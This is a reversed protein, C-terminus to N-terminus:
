CIMRVGPDRGPPAVLRGGCEPCRDPDRGILRRVIAAADVPRPEPTGTLERLLAMRETKGRGALLGYHRVKALGKPLVHMFLRRLFEVADLEMTKSRGDRSDRYRFAVRGGEMSVLRHNSIAVRHTYRGLYRLVEGADRFPPKCYAVWEKEYMSDVLSRMAGEAALGEACGGLDLSGERWLRKIGAMVKGRFMRSMARVPALFDPSACARWRGDADLGGAPVILHAHPHYQMTRGWTHLVAIAGARAGLFRPDAALDRVTEWSCRMLLGYLARQNRFFLANLESPVTFVVHFYGVALLESEREAVWRERRLAQCKPCHRNRCSNFSVEVHGCDACQLAHSGLAGTRCSLMADHAKLQEPGLSYRARFERGHERLVDQVELAPRATM